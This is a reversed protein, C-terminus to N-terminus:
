LDRIPELFRRFRKVWGPNHKYHPQQRAAALRHEVLANKLESGFGKRVLWNMRAKTVPGVPQDLGIVDKKHRYLHHKSMIDHVAAQVIPYAGKPSTNAFIDMLQHALRDDEIQDLKYDDYAVERIIRAADAADVQEFSAPVPLRGDLKHRPLWSNFTKRTVGYRTAGGPDEMASRNAVGGEREVIEEAFQKSRALSWDPDVVPAQAAPAGAIGGSPNVALQTTKKGVKFGGEPIGTVVEVPSGLRYLAGSTERALRHRAEQDPETEPSRLYVRNDPGVFHRDLEPVFGTKRYTDTLEQPAPKAWHWTKPNVGQRYASVRWEADDAYAPLEDSATKGTANQPRGYGLPAM